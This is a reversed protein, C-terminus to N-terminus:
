LWESVAEVLRNGPLPIGLGRDIVQVV